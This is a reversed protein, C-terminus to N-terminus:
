VNLEKQNSPQWSQFLNHLAEAYDSGIALTYNKMTMRVIHRYSMKTQYPLLDVRELETKLQANTLEDSAFVAVGAGFNGVGIIAFAPIRMLDDEQKNLKSM